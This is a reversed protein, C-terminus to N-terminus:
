TPRPEPPRRMYFKYQDEHTISFGLREYLRRAPNTKVVGLTVAKSESAAEEILIRMLRGGIGRRQFPTDVFLQALFIADDEPATQLWGIAEDRLMVIRVQEVSWRRAFEALHRTEDLGLTAITTRM